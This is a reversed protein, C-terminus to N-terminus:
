LSLHVEESSLVRNYVALDDLYGDFYAVPSSAPLEEQSLAFRDYSYGVRFYEATISLDLLDTAEEFQTNGSTIIQAPVEEGNIWFQVLPFTAVLHSWEGAEIFDDGITRFGALRPYGSTLELSFISGSASLEATGNNDITDYGIGM